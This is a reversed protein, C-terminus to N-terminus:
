IKKAISDQSADFDTLHASGVMNQHSPPRHEGQSKEVHDGRIARDSFTRPLSNFGRSADSLGDM